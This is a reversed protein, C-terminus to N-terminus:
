RAIKEGTNKFLRAPAIKSVLTSLVVKLGM